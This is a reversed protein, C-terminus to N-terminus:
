PGRVIAQAIVRALEGRDRAETAQRHDDPDDGYHTELIVAPALTDRLIYLTAGSWSRAQSRAGRDRTGIAEACARSLLRAWRAGKRSTPWHLAMSGRVSAMGAPESFANFHLEIVLDPREHNVARCLRAMADGYRRIDPREHVTADVGRAALEAAIQRGFPRHWAWEQVGDAGTAGQASARHGITIAVKM